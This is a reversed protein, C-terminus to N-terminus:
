LRIEVETLMTSRTSYWLHPQNDQKASTEIVSQGHNDVMLVFVGMVVCQCPPQIQCATAPHPLLGAKSHGDCKLRVQDLLM